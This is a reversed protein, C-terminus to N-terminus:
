APIRNRMKIVTCNTDIRDGLTAAALIVSVTAVTRMEFREEVTGFIM